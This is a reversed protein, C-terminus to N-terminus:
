SIRYCQFIDFYSGFSGDVNTVFQTFIAMVENLRAIDFCNLATLGETERNKNLFGIMKTWHIMIYNIIEGLSFWREEVQGPIDNFPAGTYDPRASLIRQIDCLKAERAKMLFDVLAEKRHTRRV